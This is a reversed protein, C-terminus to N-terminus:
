PAGEAAVGRPWPLLAESRWCALEHKRYIVLYCFWMVIIAFFFNVDGHSAANTADGTAVDHATPVMAPEGTAVGSTTRLM